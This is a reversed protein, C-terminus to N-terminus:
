SRLGATRASRRWLHAGPERPDGFEGPNLLREGRGRLRVSRLHHAHPTCARLFSSPRDVIFEGVPRSQQAKESRAVPISGAVNLKPFHGPNTVLRALVSSESAVGNSSCVPVDRGNRRPPICPPICPPPGSGEQDEISGGSKEGIISQDGSGCVPEIRDIAAVGRHARTDTLAPAGSGRIVGSPPSLRAQCTPRATGVGWAHPWHLPRHRRCTGRKSWVGTPARACAPRVPLRAVCSCDKM